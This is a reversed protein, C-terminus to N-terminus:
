KSNILHFPSFIADQCSAKYVELEATGYVFSKVLLFNLVDLYTSM